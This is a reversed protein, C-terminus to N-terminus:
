WDKSGGRRTQGACSVISFYQFSLMWSACPICSHTTQQREVADDAQTLRARQLAQTSVVPEFTATSEEEKAPAEETPTAASTEELLPVKEVAPPTTKDDESM